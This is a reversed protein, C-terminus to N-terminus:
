KLEWTYCHYGGSEVRVDESGTYKRILAAGKEGQFDEFTYGNSKNLYEKTNSNGSINVQKEVIYFSKTGGTGFPYAFNASRLGLCGHFAFNGINVVLRFNFEEINKCNWFATNGITDYLDPVKKLSFCDYFAANGVSISSNHEFFELNYCQYFAENGIQIESTGLCSVTKLSTNRYLACPKIKIVEPPIILNEINHSVTILKTGDKSYLVNDKAMFSENEESVKIELLSCNNFVEEGIGRVTSPIYISKLGKPLDTSISTMGEPFSVSSLSNCDYVVSTGFSTVIEPFTIETLSTCGNFAYDGISTVSNPIEIEALSTCEYFAYNGISTVSNPMEIEALSTCEYFASKGISTVSNPIEIETLNTCGYFSFDEIKILSNPLKISKLSTCGDFNYFRCYSDHNGSSSFSSCSYRHTSYLETLGTTESLDLYVLATPNGILAKRIELITSDTIEGTVKVFHPGEGELESIVTKVDENTYENSSGWIATLTTDEAPFFKLNTNWGLFVLNEKIPTEMTIPTGYRGKISQIESGGDSDFNVTVINRTYFIKIEFKGDSNLSGNKYEIPSFGEYNKALSEINEVSYASQTEKLSYSGEELDELYHEVNFLIKTLEKWQAYLTIDDKILVIDEDNYSIGSGDKETNWAVFVKDENSFTNKRLKVYTSDPLREEINESNETNSDYRVKHTSSLKELNLKINIKKGTVTFVNSAGGYLLSSTNGNVNSIKVLIIGQMGTPVRPITITKKTDPIVTSSYTYGNKLSSQDINSYTLSDGKIAKLNKADYLTVEIWNCSSDCNLANIEFNFDVFGSTSGLAGGPNGVQSCSISIFVTFLIFCYLITNKKM